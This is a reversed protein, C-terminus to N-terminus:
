KLRDMIERITELQERTLDAQGDACRAYGETLNVGYGEGFETDVTFEPACRCVKEPDYSLNILIDTLTVSDTGWFANEEGDLYVTTVTNGCYGSVPDEVTQPESALAHTHDPDTQPQGEPAIAFYAYYMSKGAGGIIEKGIRYSGEELAGYLWEWNEPFRSEGESSILYAIDTWCGDALIELPQWGDKTFKELSYCSGTVLEEGGEQTFILTLGTPTVDGCTLTLGPFVVEGSSQAKDVVGPAASEVAGCATLVAALALVATIALLKKM